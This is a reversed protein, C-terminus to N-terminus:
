ESAPPLPALLPRCTLKLGGKIKLTLSMVMNDKVHEAGGMSPHLDFWFRSLLAVLM